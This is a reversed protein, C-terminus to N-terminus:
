IGMVQRLHKACLATDDGSERRALTCAECREAEAYAAEERLKVRAEEAAEGQFKEKM